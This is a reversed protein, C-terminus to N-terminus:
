YYSVQVKPTRRNKFFLEIPTTNGFQINKINYLFGIKNYSGYLDLKNEKKLYIKLMDDVTTGYDLILVKSSGTGTTFIVNMKPGSNNLNDYIQNGSNQSNFLNMNNNGINLNNIGIINNDINNNINNIMNFQNNKNISINSGIMMNNNISENIKNNSNKIQKIFEILPLKLFTGKNFNFPVSGEKHIGIVKNSELNLIPSGSSGDDTSGTHNINYNNFQNLIGYSVMANKGKPYQLIYVSKNVYYVNEKDIFLNEDLDLFNQIKDTEKLQIIAIDYNESFFTIRKSNTDISKIDKDDNILLNIEKNQNYYQEDIVHHNTMLCKITQNNGLPVKCFFGTGSAGKVKIKCVCNILQDLIKRTGSISVPDPSGAIKKEKKLQINYNNNISM